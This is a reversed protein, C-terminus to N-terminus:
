VHARGIQANTLVIGDASVIFGSGQGQTPVEPQPAGRFFEPSPIQEASAGARRTGATTINVVAPGFQQVIAAFDPLPAVRVTPATVAPTAQANATPLAHAATLAGAFIGLAALATMVKRPHM